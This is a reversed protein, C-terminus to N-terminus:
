KLFASEPLLVVIDFPLEPKTVTNSLHIYGWRNFTKNFEDSSMGSKFREFFLPQPSYLTHTISKYGIGNLISGHFGPVVLWGNPHQSQLLDFNATAQNYNKQFINKTSQVPNFGIFYLSSFVTVTMVFNQKINKNFFALKQSLLYFICLSFITFISIWAEDQYQTLDIEYFIFKSCLGLLLIFYFCFISSINIKNKSYKFATLTFVFAPLGIAFSLRGGPVKDLLFIKGIINPIPFVM